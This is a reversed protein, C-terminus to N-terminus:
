DRIQQQHAKGERARDKDMCTHMHSSICTFFYKANYM